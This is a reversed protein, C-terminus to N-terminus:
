PVGKAPWGNCPSKNFANATAPGYVGDDSILANPNNRNWLRQFAILNQKAYASAGTGFEFHVKDTTPLPYIWGSNTLPTQWSAYDPVDIAIGGEHNSTGPKAVPNTQGCTGYAKWQYLM